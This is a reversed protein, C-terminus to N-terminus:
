SAEVRTTSALGCARAVDDVLADPARAQGRTVVHIPAGHAHPTLSRVTEDLPVPPYLSARPDSESVVVSAVPVDRARLVSLATLASSLAGLASGTVVLAPCALAVIWDLVTHADDLPVMVGGVGEVLTLEARPDLSARVVDHLTLARGEARAAMDPSLPRTFRFPAVERVRASSPDGGVSRLLVAPDSAAVEEDRFGTVVPKRVGVAHGADTLARALLATVYTKGVDTGSGTVFLRARRASEARASV